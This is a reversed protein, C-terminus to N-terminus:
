EGRGGSSHTSRAFCCPPHTPTKRKKTRPAMARQLKSRGGPPHPQRTQEFGTQPGERHAPMSCRLGERAQCSLRAHLEFECQRYSDGALEPAVHPMPTAAEGEEQKRAGEAWAPRGLRGERGGALVKLNM